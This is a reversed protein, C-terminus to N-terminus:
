WQYSYPSKKFALYQIKTKISTRMNPLFAQYILRKGLSYTYIQERFPSITSDDNIRLGREREREKERERERERERETFM